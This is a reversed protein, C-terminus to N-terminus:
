KAAFEPTTLWRLRERGAADLADESTAVADSLARACSCSREAALAPLVRRLIAKANAVNRAVNQMVMANTVAEHDDHWSDYDTVQALVGYCLGAERALKAEPLATMGVIDFGLSRYVASEARTSFAPGEICVYTGQAHTREVVSRSAGVLAERVEPCFPRGFAIHAVVGEGFYTSPRDKTRDYLDDPVVMDMPGYDERLSGVASASVVRRVGLSRFAYMNARSPVESPMLRHGRGHRPIFVVRVDGVMGVRIDDSPHGYPTEVSFTEVDRLGDLDYLGSGGLIGIDAQPM